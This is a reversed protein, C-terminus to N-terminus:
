PRKEAYRRDWHTERRGLVLFAAVQSDGFELVALKEAIGIPKRRGDLGEEHIRAM